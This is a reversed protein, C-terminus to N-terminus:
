YYCFLEKFCSLIDSLFMVEFKCKVPKNSETENPDTELKRGEEEAELMFEIFSNAKAFSKTKAFEARKQEMIEKSMKAFYETQNTKLRFKLLKSLWPAFRSIIFKVIDGFSHDTQFVKRANVITPNTPDNLSDVKVAFAIQILVDM